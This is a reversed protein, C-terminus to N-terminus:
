SDNREPKEDGQYHRNIRDSQDQYREQERQQERQEREEKGDAM